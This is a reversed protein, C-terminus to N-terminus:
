AFTDEQLCLKTLSNQFHLELNGQRSYSWQMSNFPKKKEGECDQAKHQTWPRFASAEMSTNSLSINHRDTGLSASVVYITVPVKTFETGETGVLPM